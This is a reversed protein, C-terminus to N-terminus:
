TDVTGYIVLNLTDQPLGETHDAPMDAFTMMRPEPAEFARAYYHLAERAKGTFNLYSTIM